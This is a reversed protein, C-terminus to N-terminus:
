WCLVFDGGAGCVVVYIQGEWNRYEAMDSWVRRVRLATGDEFGWRAQVFCALRLFLIGNNQRAVRKRKTRCSQRELWPVDDSTHPPQTRVCVCNWVDAATTCGCRAECVIFFLRLLFSFFFLYFGALYVVFFDCFTTEDRQAGGRRGRRESSTHESERQTRTVVWETHRDTHTHTISKKEISGGQAAFLRVGGRLACVWM